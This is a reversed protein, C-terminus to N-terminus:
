TPKFLTNKRGQNFGIILIKNCKQIPKAQFIFGFLFKM